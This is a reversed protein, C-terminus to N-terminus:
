GPIPWYMTSPTVLRSRGTTCAQPRTKAAAKTMRFVDGVDQADEDIRSQARGIFVHVNESAFWRHGGPEADDDDGQMTM